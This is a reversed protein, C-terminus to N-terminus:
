YPITTLFTKHLILYQTVENEYKLIIICAVINKPAVFSGGIAIEKGGKKGEPSTYGRIAAELIEILIQKCLV